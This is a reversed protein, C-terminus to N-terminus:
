GEGSDEGGGGGRQNPCLCVSPVRGEQVGATRVAQGRILEPDSGSAQREAQGGVGNEMLAM